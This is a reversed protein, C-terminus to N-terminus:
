ARYGSWQNISYEEVFNISAITSQVVSPSILRLIDNETGYALTIHPVFPYGPAPIEYTSNLTAHRLTINEEKCLVLVLCEHKVEWSWVELHSPITFIGSCLNGIAKFGDMTKPSDVLTCHLLARPVPNFVKVIQQLRELDDLSSSSPRLAVFTGTDM